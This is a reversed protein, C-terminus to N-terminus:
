GHSVEMKRFVSGEPWLMADATKLNCLPIVPIGMKRALWGEVYTGDSNESHPLTVVFDAKLLMEALDSRMHMEWKGDWGDLAEIDHPVITDYGYNKLKESVERFFPENKDTELHESISGSVYGVLKRM